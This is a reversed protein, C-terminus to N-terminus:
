DKQCTGNLWTIGIRLTLTTYFYFLLAKLNSLDLNSDQSELQLDGETEEYYKDRVTILM